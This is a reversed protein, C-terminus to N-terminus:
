YFPATYDLKLTRINNPHLTFIIKNSQWTLYVYQVKFMVFFLHIMSHTDLSKSIILSICFYNLYWTWINFIPLHWFLFVTLLCVDRIHLGKLEFHRQETFLILCPTPTQAQSIWIESGKPEQFLAGLMRPNRLQKSHPYLNHFFNHDELRCFFIMPTLVLKVDTHWM